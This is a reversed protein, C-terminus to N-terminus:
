PTCCRFGTNPYSGSRDYTPSIYKCTAIDKPTLYNGGRIVCPDKRPDGGDTQRECNDEWETANGMLDFIGKEHGECKAFSGVPLTRGADREATNCYGNMALGGGYAVEDNVLGACALMWQSRTPDKMAAATPPTSGGGIKGCLRKGHARCYTDADCWDICTVPAASASNGSCDARRVFSTKWTCVSSLVPPSADTAIDLLFRNYDANTVEFADIALGNGLDIMGADPPSADEDIVGQDPIGVDAPTGDPLPPAADVGADDDGKAEDFSSCAWVVCLTSGLALM